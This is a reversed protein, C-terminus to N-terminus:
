LQKIKCAPNFIKNNQDFLIGNVIRTSFGYEAIKKKLQM